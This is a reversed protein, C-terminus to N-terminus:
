CTMENLHMHHLHPHLSCTLSCFSNSILQRQWASVGEVKHVHLIQSSVHWVWAIDIPPVLGDMDVGTKTTAELLPIWLSQYRCLWGLMM